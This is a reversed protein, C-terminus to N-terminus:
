IPKGGEPSLTCKEMVDYVFRTAIQYLSADHFKFQDIWPRGHYEVRDRLHHDM